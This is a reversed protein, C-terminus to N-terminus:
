ACIHDQVSATNLQASPSLCTHEGRECVGAPTHPHPEALAGAQVARRPLVTGAASSYIGLVTVMFRSSEGKLAVEKKIVENCKYIAATLYTFM